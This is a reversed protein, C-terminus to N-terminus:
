AEQRQLLPQIDRRIQRGSLHANVQLYGERMLRRKLEDISGCEPALQFAREIIRVGEMAAIRHRLSEGVVVCTPNPLQRSEAKMWRESNSSSDLAERSSIRVVGMPSANKRCVAGNM